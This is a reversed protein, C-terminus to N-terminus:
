SLGERKEKIEKHIEELKKIKLELNKIEEDKLGISNKLAAIEDTKESLQKEKKKVLGDIKQSTSRASDIEKRMSANEEELAEKAAVIGLVDSLSAAFYASIQSLDSEPPEESVRIFMQQSRDWRDKDKDDLLATFASFFQARQQLVPRNSERRIWEFISRASVLNGGRLEGEAWKMQETFENERQSEQIYKDMDTCGPGFIMPGIIIFLFAALLSLGRTPYGRTKGNSMVSEKLRL